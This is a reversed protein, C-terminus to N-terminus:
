FADIYISVCMYPSNKGFTASRYTTWEDIFSRNGSIITVDMGDGILMINWKKKSIEVYERYVGKKIYIVFRKTSREPAASIADNISTFKGTGDQAVVVDAPVGNGQILKRDKYKLWSPFEERGILKRGGTRGGSNGGGGGGRSKSDPIPHVMRLTDIVLSTIQNLSGAVLSKVIGNTGEFGEMCTDQNVLAGSLWTRLDSSLKGTNNNKGTIINYFNDKM